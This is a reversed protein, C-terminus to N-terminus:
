RLASVVSKNIGKVPSLAAECPTLMTQLPSMEGAESGLAADMLQAAATPLSEVYTTRNPCSSDAPGQVAAVNSEVNSEVSREGVGDPITLVEKTDAVTAQIVSLGEDANRMGQRGSGATTGMNMGAASGFAASVAETAKTGCYGTFVQPLTGCLAVQSLTLSHTASMAHLNINATLSM